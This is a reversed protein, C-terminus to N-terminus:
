SGCDSIIDDPLGHYKYINDIFFKAIEEGMVMKNYPMFHAMKILRDIVVFISDFAKSSPLNTIFDMSISSLPKNPIPLLCLLRYRRHRPIKSRSCIDCTTVYDKVSKWM